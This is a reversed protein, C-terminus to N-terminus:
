TIIERNIYNLFLRGGSLTHLNNQTIKIFHLEELKAIKAVEFIDALQYNFKALQQLAFGEKTRLGTMIIEHLRDKPTLKKLKLPSNLEERAEFWAQGIKIRSAASPGCGIYEDGRWYSLNHKCEFHPRAFNSVEYNIYGLNKLTSNVKKFMQASLNEAIPKKIQQYFPTHKEITLQYMSLHPPNLKQVMYLERELDPHTQTPLAYMLDFSYNEFVNAVNNITNIATQANHIRGLFRLNDDYFSQVGLSL